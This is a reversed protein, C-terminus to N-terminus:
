ICHTYSIGYFMYEMCQYLLLFTIASFLLLFSLLIPCDWLSILFWVEVFYSILIDVRM